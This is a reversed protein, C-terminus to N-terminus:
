GLSQKYAATLNEITANDGPLVGFYTSTARWTDTNFSDRTAFLVGGSEYNNVTAKGEYMPGYQTWKANETSNDKTFVVAYVTVKGPSFLSGANETIDDATLYITMENGNEDGTAANGDVNERKIMATVSTVTGNIELTLYNVMDETFLSNLLETDGNSAGVVNGIYTDNLRDETNDMRDLLAKRDAEDNLILEFKDLANHVAVEPVFESAPVFEFNLVSNLVTSDVTATVYSFTLTFTLYARGEIEQGKELGNLTFTINTNDYTGEGTVFRVDNFTFTFESNNYLKVEYVLTANANTGLNTTTNLITSTFSNVRSLTVNANSASLVAADYIFVNKQPAATATASVSLSRTIQAYGITSFTLGLSLVVLTFLIVAKKM